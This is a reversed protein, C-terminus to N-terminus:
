MYRDEHVLQVWFHENLSVVNRAQWMRQM